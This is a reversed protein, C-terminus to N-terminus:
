ECDAPGHKHTIMRDIDKSLAKLGLQLKKQAALIDKVNGRVKRSYTTEKRRQKKSATPM